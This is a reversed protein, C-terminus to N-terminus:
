LPVEQLSSSDTSLFTVLQDFVFKRARSLRSRAVVRFADSALAEDYTMCASQMTGIDRLVLEDPDRIIVIAAVRDKIAYYLKSEGFGVIPGGYENLWIVLEVFDPFTQAISELCATTSSLDNQTQANLVVHIMVRKGHNRYLLEFIDHDLMYGSLPLFTSAGTDIVVDSSTGIIIEIMEDFKYLDVAAHDAIQIHRPDFAKFRSLTPTLPDTDICITGPDQDRLFQALNFAVFSKGVGGKGQMIFHVTNM